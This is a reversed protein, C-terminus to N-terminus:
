STCGTQGDPGSPYGKNDAQCPHNKLATEKVELRTLVPPVWVRKKSDFMRAAMAKM